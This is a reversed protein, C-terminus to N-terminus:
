SRNVNQNNDPRFRIPTSTADMMFQVSGEIFGDKQERTSFHKKNAMEIATRRFQALIEPTHNPDM